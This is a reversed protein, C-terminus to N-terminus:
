NAHGASRKKEFANVWHEVEQRTLKKQQDDVNIVYLYGTNGPTSTFTSVLRFQESLLLHGSTPNWLEKACLCGLTPTLPYYPKDRFYDPDITTGHAIIETRGIKGAFWAEMMPQYGRWSEPLLQEYSQLSDGSWGPIANFYKEWKDEFPMIMQINPTPGIFLNHAVDTGQISFIGQPTSGDTIFYPLDSGSRALQEFLLLSGKADRAFKGNAFQVVAVGPYDRNWRQFSYILKQGSAQQHRFLKVIDPTKAKRASSSASLYKDLEILISVTDHGPFTSQIKKKLLLINARSPDARYSYIASMSFLKANNEKDLIKNIQAVYKKPYVAYVAELLSRKTEYQLSDYASILKSFGLEVAPGSFMFQAISACASEYKDESNSDLPLSFTRDIVRDKLDQQLALRHGSLVFDSYIEDRRGQASATSHICASVLLLLLVQKM